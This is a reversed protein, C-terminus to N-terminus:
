FPNSKTPYDNAVPVQEKIDIQVKALITRMLELDVDGSNDRSSDTKGSYVNINIKTDKFADQSYDIKDITILRGGSFNYEKLFELFTSADGEGEVLVALKGATSNEVIINYSTIIFNTKASIIELAALVSFYDEQPPILQSLVLNATDLDFETDVVNNKFDILSKKKNYSELESNLATIKVRKAQYQTFNFYVLLTSILLLTILSVLLPFNHRLIRNDSYSFNLKM